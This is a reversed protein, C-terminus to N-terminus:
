AQSSPAEGTIPAQKACQGEDVVIEDPGRRPSARHHLARPPEPQTTKFKLMSSKWKAIRKRLVASKTSGFYYPSHPGRRTQQRGADRPRPDYRLGALQRHPGDDRWQLVKDITKGLEQTLRQSQDALQGALFQNRYETVLAKLGQIASSSVIERNLYGTREEITSNSLGDSQVRRAQHPPPSKKPTGSSINAMAVMTGKNGISTVRLRTGARQAPRTGPAILEVHLQGIFNM